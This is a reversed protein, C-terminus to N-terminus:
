FTSRMKFVYQVGTTVCINEIEALNRDRLYGNYRKRQLCREDNLGNDIEMRYTINGFGVKEAFLTLNPRVKGYGYFLVNDIDYIVRNGGTGGVGGIGDQYNLGYSLSKEPIDHRFGFRFSGRDFPVITRKKGILPDYIYADELNLGATVVAQPLNLFGLRISANLYLAFVKGDGVNGNTSLLNQADPSIDIKGISKSVDYYFFRSNLVGGDNPLRYDLNINYRWTEEQELEPNGATTNQDDDQQNTGASFDAFSLQSVDKEASMRLQFNPSIDFRFDLKPKVFDFDRKKNVDGTQEIESVEYLLSSELSMRSNIQWNHVAFGEYRIEEVKSIANPVSIARLGGHEASTAGPLNLGLRLSSNQITQAGEIGLELSQNEAVNWAYSTRLIREQYQSSTDLFLDKTEAQGLVSSVFRERTTSNNRENIIGLLKYKGGNSFNHEYDGGFEWNDATSPMDEREFSVSAPTSQYDTITRILKSPPDSERYLVNFAIRDATTPQYVINSNLRYNTQERHRDYARTENLSYDALLSTEFSEQLQYDSSVDVSFLYNIQGTQGSYSFSGLPKVTGDYSHALGLEASLSSASQFELLVINVLQGSNRVDLDGSSGRIIEIYDVQDAAIRDLQASAENAKGAMRKGNILIQSSGGLGRSNGRGFRPVQNGELALGIGPIRNLMDNVSVAGYEAFYSAPYRVTSGDEAVKQALALTSFFSFLVAVLAAVLAAVVSASHFKSSM